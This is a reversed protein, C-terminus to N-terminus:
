KSKGFSKEEFLGDSSFVPQFQMVSQVSVV